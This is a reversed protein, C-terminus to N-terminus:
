IGLRLPHIVGHGYISQNCVAGKPWIHYFCHSGSIFGRQDIQAYISRFSGSVSSIALDITLTVAVPSRSGSFIFSRASFANPTRLVAAAYAAIRLQQIEITTAHVTDIITTAHAPLRTNRRPGGLRIGECCKKDNNGTEYAPPKPEEAIVNKDKRGEIGCNKKGGINTPGSNANKGCHEAHTIAQHANKGGCKANRGSVGPTSILSAPRGTQM